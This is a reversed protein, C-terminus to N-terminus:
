KGIYKVIIERYRGSERLQKLADNFDNCTKEELFAV